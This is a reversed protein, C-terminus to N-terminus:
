LEGLTLTRYVLYWMADCNRDAIVVNMLALVMVKVAVVVVVM